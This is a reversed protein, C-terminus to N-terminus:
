PFRLLKLSEGHGRLRARSCMGIHNSRVLLLCCIKGEYCHGSRRQRTSLRAPLFLAPFYCSQRSGRGGFLWHLINYTSRDAARGGTGRHIVRVEPIMMNVTARIVLDQLGLGPRGAAPGERRRRRRGRRWSRCGPGPGPARAQSDGPAPWRRPGGEEPTGRGQTGARLRLEPAPRSSRAAPCGRARGPRPSRDKRRASLGGGGGARATRRGRPRPAPAGLGSVVGGALAPEGPGTRCM